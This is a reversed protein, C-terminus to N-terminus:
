LRKVLELKEIITNLETLLSYAKEVEGAEFYALSKKFGESLYEVEERIKKLDKTNAVM